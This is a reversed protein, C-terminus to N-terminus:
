VSQEVDNVEEPDIEIVRPVSGRYRLKRAISGIARRQIKAPSRHDGRGTTPPPTRSRKGRQHLAFHPRGITAGVTPLVRPSHFPLVAPTATPQRNFPLNSHIAPSRHDGRGHPLSQTRSRENHQHLAFRPRGIIAGVTPLVCPSHFPLGAAGAVPRLFSFAVSFSSFCVPVSVDRESTVVPPASKQASKVAPTGM